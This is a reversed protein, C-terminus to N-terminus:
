WPKCSWPSWDRGSRTFYRWAAKAQVEASAGHGFLSREASGMQFLGLYQGNQATTRLGSECRAVQLAQDCYRGFVDCIVEQPTARRVAALQRTRQLRDIAARVATIRRTSVKVTRLNRSFERKARVRIRTDSLLWKHNRFFRVTSRSKQLTKSHVALRRELQEESAPLAAAAATCLVLLLM